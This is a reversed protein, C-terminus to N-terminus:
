IAFLTAALFRTVYFVTISMGILIPVYRIGQKESGEKIVGIVLGGFFSTIVLSILAYIVLFNPDISVTTIGQFSSTTSFGGFPSMGGSSGLEDYDPIKVDEFQSMQDSLVQVLHTSIGFILPAGLGVAFFIFIVYMLVSARVEKEILQTNQIDSSTQELLSALEGGSDIGDVIMKLTTELQRSKIRQSIGLMSEKLDKGAMIEKGAKKLEKEFIGFEPRATLILARETTLGARINMSMIQLADPLIREVFNRRSEVRFWLWMYIGGEFIVYCLMFVSLAINSGLELFVMLSFSITIALLLGFIVTFGLFREGPVRVGSYALLNRYGDRVRSPLIKAITVYSM